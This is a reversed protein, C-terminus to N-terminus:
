FEFTLFKLVPTGFRKHDSERQCLFHFNPKDFIRAVELNLFYTNKLYVCSVSFYGKIKRVYTRQYGSIDSWFTKGKNRTLCLAFFPQGKLVAPIKVVQCNLSRLFFHVSFIYMAFTRTTCFFGVKTQNNVFIQQWIRLSLLDGFQQWVRWHKYRYWYMRVYFYLHILVSHSLYVSNICFFEWNRSKKM